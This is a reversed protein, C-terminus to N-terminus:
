VTYPKHHLIKSIRELKARELHPAQREPDGSTYVTMTGLKTEPALNKQETLLNKAQIAMQHAPDLFEIEPYEKTFVDLALPYHTCGLICATINQATLPEMCHRVEKAITPDEGEIMAVLNTSGNSIIRKDQSIEGIYRAYVGNKHTFQTSIVGIHRHSLTSAGIAGSQVVFLAPSKIENQYQHSLCSITNCAVLLLKVENQNMFDVMYRALALLESPTRNGYPANAGDGFYIIDEHPLLSQIQRAVTYGGIGSDIIGIQNM